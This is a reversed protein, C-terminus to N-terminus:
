PRDDRASLRDLRLRHRADTLRRAGAIVAAFVGLATGGGILFMVLLQYKVAEVPDVGALIQGTMMGPLAVLGTAAMSNISPIMGARVSKRRAEEMATQASAGLALRAEIALRGGHAESVLRDLALSVGNMTNGLIMGLLPLAYRADYWPREDFQTTLAFLTVLLAAVCMASTGIGYSWFGAFSRDQRAMAERGAFAVMVLAALTTLWPSSATFLAKLVLGVLTLQVVMRLAAVALRRELGLRFAISLGGNVILLSAALAVDWYDLAIFSV